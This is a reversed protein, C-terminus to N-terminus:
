LYILVVCPLHPFRFVYVQIVQMMLLFLILIPTEQALTEHVRLMLLFFVRVMVMPIVVLIVLLCLFLNLDTNVQGPGVVFRILLAYLLDVVLPLLNLLLFPTEQRNVQHDLLSFIEM